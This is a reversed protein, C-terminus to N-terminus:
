KVVRGNAFHSQFRNQPRNSGPAFFYNELTKLTKSDNRDRTQAWTSSLKFLLIKNPWGNLLSIRERISCACYRRVSNVLPKRGIALLETPLAEAVTIARDSRAIQGDYYFFGRIGPHWIAREQLGIWECRFEVTHVSPFQQAFLYAHRTLEALARVLFLPSFWGDPLDPRPARDEWFPRIYTAKGDFSVRWFETRGFLYPMDEWIACELFEGRPDGDRIDQVLKPPENSFVYFPGPGQVFNNLDQNIFHLIGTMKGPQLRHEDSTQIAYSLHVRKKLVDEFVKHTKALELFRAEGRAHWEKL